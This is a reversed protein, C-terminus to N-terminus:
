AEEFKRIKYYFKGLTQFFLNTLREPNKKIAKDDLIRKFEYLIQEITERRKKNEIRENHESGKVEESRM